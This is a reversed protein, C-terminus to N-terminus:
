AAYTETVSSARLNVRSFPNVTIRLSFWEAGTTEM